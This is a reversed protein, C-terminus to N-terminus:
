DDKFVKTRKCNGCNVKDKDKVGTFAFIIGCAIKTNRFRISSLWHITEGVRKGYKFVGTNRCTTCTVRNKRRTINSKQKNGKDYPWISDCASAITDKGGWQIDIKYHVKTNIM